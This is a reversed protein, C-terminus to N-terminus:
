GNKKTHPPIEPDNRNANGQHTLVKLCKKLHKKSIQSKKKKYNRQKARYGM